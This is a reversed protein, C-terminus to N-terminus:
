IGLDCFCIHDEIRLLLYKTMLTFVWHYPDRCKYHTGSLAEEHRRDYSPCQPLQRHM